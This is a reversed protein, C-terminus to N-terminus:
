KVYKVVNSQTFSSNFTGKTARVTYVYHTNTKVNTDVVTTGKYNQAVTTWTGWTGTTTNYTKKYIIYSDAGNIANWNVRIGNTATGITVTPIPDFKLASTAVFNSTIGNGVAAVTYIYTVGLKATKDVYSTGTVGSAPSMWGSWTNNATNLEKRYIKYSGAGNIANWTIKVGNTANAIKVTPAMNCKLGSTAVYSSSTASNVAVVAYSYTVGLKATKDVYASGTLGSAPSMWGSWTNNTTNLERRFVKYSTAGFVNSWSVKIGTSTNAITVKPPINCKISVSSVYSGKEGNAVARVTYNYTAGLNGITDVYSTSKHDKKISTWKSWEKTSDNYARRYVIYSEAGNIANWKVSVGTQTNSVSVTPIPDCKLGSTAIYSSSTTSNVAVVAYSYTVGLKATKDICASGTVGSAIVAWSGWTNNTTNLERRFIKYSTAGFVNSWSVKIGNTTNNITTKPVVNCKVSSSQVYSGSFSGVTARVCYIYSAGLNGLTDTYSTGTYGTKLVSWSSWTNNTANFAKRYITYGTAGNVKNWSLNIGSTTSTAKVTVPIDCKLGSTAVYNSSTTSNVGVVAYSYTVGLKATKDVFANGTYGTTVSAWGSWTNNSTDLERRFVKYSTAGFIKSWEVKIGDTTNKITPKLTPNCKISVSSVYNSSLTSNVAVVTYSYTVGLNGLTDNYSTSTYGEKLKSWGGWTKTSDNYARRFVTYSEAGNIANWSVKICNESNAVSVTPTMNCKIADTQRFSGTVSSNVASVAYIYTVGLKATKDIYSTGTVGSAPSTWASWTSGNFEKRFIKYSKAGDIANWTLKVGDATSYASTTPKGLTLMPITTGNSLIAGCTNCKTDGTYGVETYTPDKANVITTGLSHNCQWIAYLTVDKDQTYTGGPKYANSVGGSISDAWFLFNYGDRVPVQTSLTLPVGQEKTQSAPAGTGGNANYTVTSYPLREWVAYFTFTDTTVSPNCWASYGFQYTDSQLPYLYKTLDGADIEAQTCWGTSPVYWKNDSSRLVNWGTQKYGARTFSSGNFKLYEDIKLQYSAMSGSGGNANYKISYTTVKPNITISKTDTMSGEGSVSGYPTAHMTVKYTGVGPTAFSFTTQSKDIRQNVVFNGAPDAITIWYHSLNSNSPSLAWAIKITDGMTYSSKDFTIVPTKLAETTTNNVSDYNSARFVKVVSSKAYVSGYVVKSTYGYNADYVYVNSGSTYLYIAYHEEEPPKSKDFDFVVVDGLKANAIDVTGCTGYDKNFINYFVYTAFAACQWRTFGIKAAVEAGSYLGTTKKTIQSLSCKCTRYPFPPNNPDEPCVSYDYMYHSKGDSTFYSGTDYITKILDIKTQIGNAAEAEITMPASLCIGVAVILALCLSLFRKM